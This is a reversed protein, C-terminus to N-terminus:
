SLMVARSELSGFKKQVYLRESCKWRLKKRSRPQGVVSFQWSGAGGIFFAGAFGPREPAM